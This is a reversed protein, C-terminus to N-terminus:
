ECSRLQQEPFDAAIRDLAAASAPDLDRIQFVVKSTAVSRTGIRASLVGQQRLQALLKQATADTKFVGLSIGWRLDSNDQMVFFNTVGRQRLEEVKKQAGAQDGQSPIYVMYSSIERLNRRSQRDGLALAATQAEFRSAVALPFNGIETCAVLAPAAAPAIAASAAAAGGALLTLRQPDIQRKSRQPERGDPVITGLTGLNLALLAANALLLIWFIFKLM